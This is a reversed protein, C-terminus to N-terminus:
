FGVLTGVSCIRIVRELVRHFGYKFRRGITSAETTFFFVKYRVALVRLFFDTKM